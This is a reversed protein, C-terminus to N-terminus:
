TLFLWSSSGLSSSVKSTTGAKNDAKPERDAADSQLAPLSAVDVGQAILSSRLEGFKQEAKAQLVAHKADVLQLASACKRM